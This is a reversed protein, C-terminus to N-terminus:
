SAFLRVEWTAHTSPPSTSCRARRRGAPRRGADARRPRPPQRRGRRLRRGAAALLATCRTRTSRRAAAGGRQGARHGRRLAAALAAQAPRCGPRRRRGRRARGAHHPRSRPRCGLRPLPWMARGARLLARGQARSAAGCRRRRRGRTSSRRGASRGCRRTAAPRDARAPRPPSPPPSWAPPPAAARAPVGGPQGPRAVRGAAVAAELGGSHAHGGAPLRGDALLLLTALTASTWSPSLLPLLAPGDAARRGPRPEVVEGDVRVTFTDPEVEIRPLADNEPLDAKGRRRTDAVPVLRRACRRAPRGARGRDRGAAVFAVAPRPRCRATRASCRGPCCRSRPRSRPTPTAWRRGM